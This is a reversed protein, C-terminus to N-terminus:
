ETWITVPPSYAFTGDPLRTTVVITPSGFVLGEPPGPIAFNIQALGEVELPAPGSYLLVPVSVFSVGPDSGPWTFTVVPTLDQSPPPNPTTGGDPTAPTVSGLGTLFLSIISGVPAPHDASNSTGDQNMASAYAYVGNDWLSSIFIGPSAPRVPMDLCNSPQGNLVSCVHTTSKGQLSQPTIVNIQGGAAYLAAAPVGDFTM